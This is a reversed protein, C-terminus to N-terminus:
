ESKFLVNNISPPQLKNFGAHYAAKREGRLLFPFFFAYFFIGKNVDLLDESFSVVIVLVIFSFLYIDRSKVSQWFGWGLTILYISLGAVGSNILFSLYQNHANLSILFSNYMKRDYYMDRLLPVESGEGTGLLPARKILDIAANWRDVRGNIKVIGKNEYLDDRFTTVYRDTFVSFSMIFAILLLSSAISITLFRYRHKKKVVFLPFGILVIILFAILASKSSLQILGAFLIAACGMFFLRKHKPLLFIQRLAYALSVVLLMSLYTAHMDIPLSFNHNVFEWSFLSKPSLGNYLIVHIADLYLYVTTCTCCVTLALLLRDRYKKINLPLITLLLPFLLIAFQKSVVALGAYPFKSYLVALLSIFFVSQLLFVDKGPKKLRDRHFFITTHFLLSILVITSYFRDFPMAVLFLLLHYYSIKNEISDNIYFVKKM